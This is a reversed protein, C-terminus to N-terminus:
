PCTMNVSVIFGLLTLILPALHKSLSTGLLSYVPNFISPKFLGIRKLTHISMSTQAQQTFFTTLSVSKTKLKLLGYGLQTPSIANVECERCFKSHSEGDWRRLAEKRKFIELRLCVCTYGQWGRLNSTRWRSSMRAISTNSHGNGKRAQVIKLANM